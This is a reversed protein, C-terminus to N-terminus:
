GYKGLHFAQLEAVEHVSSELCSRRLHGPTHKKKGKARDGDILAIAIKCCSYAVVAKTQRNTKFNNDPLSLSVCGVRWLDVM